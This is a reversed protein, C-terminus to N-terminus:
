YELSFTKINHSKIVVIKSFKSLGELLRNCISPKNKSKLGLVEYLWIPNITLTLSYNNIVSDLLLGNTSNNLNNLKTTLLKISKFKNRTPSNLSVVLNIDLNNSIFKNDYIIEQETKHSKGGLETLDVLEDRSVLVDGSYKVIDLNIFNFLKRYRELYKEQLQKFDPIPIFNFNSFDVYSDNITLSDLLSSLKPIFKSENGYVRTLIRIVKVGILSFYKNKLSDSYKYRTEHNPDDIEIICKYKPLWIDVFIVSNFTEGSIFPVELSYKINRDSLVKIAYKIFRNSMSQKIHMERKGYQNGTLIHEIPVVTKYPQTTKTYIFKPYIINDIDDIRLKASVDLM